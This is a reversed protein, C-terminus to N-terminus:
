TSAGFLLLLSLAGALLLAALLLWPLRRASTGFGRQSRQGDMASEGLRLEPETTRLTRAPAEIVFRHHADFVIQDGPGLEADRVPHGNHLSGEESGLDRLLIRDHHLELQAHREAFAPADIRIDAEASSGVLRPRELTFSRGHYRGGVGRLVIRPDGAAEDAAAPRWGAQADPAERASLLLLEQGELYVADGVRLMAMKRVPRGNVHVGLGGEAVTMWVGRRDVCFRVLAERTEEVLQLRGDRHGIGHVGPALPLEADHGSLRLWLEEM